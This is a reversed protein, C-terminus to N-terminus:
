LIEAIWWKPANGTRTAKLIEYFNVERKKARPLLNIFNEHANKRKWDPILEASFTFPQMSFLFIEATQWSLYQWAIDIKVHIDFCFHARQWNPYQWAIGTKVERQFSFVFCLQPQKWKRLTEQETKERRSCPSGLGRKYFELQFFYKKMSLLCRRQTYLHMITLRDIM